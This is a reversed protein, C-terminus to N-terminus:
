NSPRGNLYAIMRPGIKRKIVNISLKSRWGKTHQSFYPGCEPEHTLCFTWQFDPATLYIDAFSEQVDCLKGLQKITPLRNEGCTLVREPHGDWLLITWNTIKQKSYAKLASSKEFCPTLGYSFTHFYQGYISEKIIKRPVSVLFARKWKRIWLKKEQPNLLRAKIGWKKLIELTKQNRNL